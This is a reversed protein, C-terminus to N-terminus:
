YDIGVVKMVIRIPFPFNIPSILLYFIGRFVIFYRQDPWFPCCGFWWFCDLFGFLDGFGAVKLINMRLNRLWVAVVGLSSASANTDPSNRRHASSRFCSASFCQVFSSCCFNRSLRLVFNCQRVASINHLMVALLQSFQMRRLQLVVVAINARQVQCLKTLLPLNM